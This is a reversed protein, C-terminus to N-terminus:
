QRGSDGTQQGIGSELRRLTERTQVDDPNHAVWARLTEVVKRMNQSQVYIRMLEDFARRYDPKIDLTEQLISAAENPRERRRYARALSVRLRLTDIPGRLRDNVNVTDLLAQIEDIKGQDGMLDAWLYLASSLFPLRQLAMRTVAEAGAYDGAARLTDAITLMSNGINGVVRRTAPDKYISPDETGRLRFRSSDKYFALTEDVRVILGGPTNRL